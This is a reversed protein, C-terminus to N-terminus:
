CRRSRGSTTAPGRLHSMGVRSARSHSCCRTPSKAIAASRPPTLQDVTSMLQEALTVQDLVAIKMVSSAFPQIEDHVIMGCRLRVVGDRWVYGSTSAFTSAAEFTPAVQGWDAASVEFLDTEANVRVIPLGDQEVPASAWVRQALRHAWWMFGRDTWESWEDDIQLADFVDRLVGVGADQGV